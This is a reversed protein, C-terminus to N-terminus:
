SAMFPLRQFPRNTGIKNVLEMYIKEWDSAQKRLSEYLVARNAVKVPDKFKVYALCALAHRTVVCWRLSDRFNVTATSSASEAVDPEYWVKLVGSMPISQQLYKVGTEDEYFAIRQLGSNYYQELMSPPCEELAEGNFELYVVDGFNTLTNAKVGTTDTFSIEEKNLVDDLNGFVREYRMMNLISGLQELALALDLEEETANDLLVYSSALLDNNIM